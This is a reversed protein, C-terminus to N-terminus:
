WERKKEELYVRLFDSKDIPQGDSYQRWDNGPALGQGRVRFTYREGNLYRRMKAVFDHGEETNPIEYFAYWSESPRFKHQKNM